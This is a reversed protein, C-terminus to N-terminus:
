TSISPHYGNQYANLLLCPETRIMGKALHRSLCHQLPAALASLMVADGSAADTYRITLMYLVNSM